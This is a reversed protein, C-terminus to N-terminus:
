ASQNGYFFMGGAALTPAGALQERSFRVAGFSPDIGYEAAYVFRLAENIEYESFGESAIYKPFAGADALVGLVDDPYSESDVRNFVVAALALKCILPCDGGEACIM